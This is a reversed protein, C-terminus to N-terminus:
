RVIATKALLLDFGPGGSSFATLQAAPALGTPILARSPRNLLPPLTCRYTAPIQIEALWATSGVM